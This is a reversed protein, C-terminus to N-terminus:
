IKFYAQLREFQQQWFAKAKQVADADSLKMTDVVIQCRDPGSANFRIDLLSGDPWRARINKGANLKTFDLGPADLWNGRLSEDAWAAFAAFLPVPLTKSLTSQFDGACTEHKERIGRAREYGVSIMQGWWGAAAPLSQMTLDWIKQHDRLKAAAGGADLLALWEDWGKGTAARLAADGCPFLSTDIVPAAAAAAPRAQAARKVSGAARPAATKKAIKPKKAATKAAAHKPSAAKKAARKSATVAVSKRAISKKAVGKKAQPKRASRKKATGSKATARKKQTAM